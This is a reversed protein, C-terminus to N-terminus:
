IDVATVKLSTSHCMYVYENQSRFHTVSDM